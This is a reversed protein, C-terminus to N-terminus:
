DTLPLALGCRVRVYQWPDHFQHVHQLPLNLGKVRSDGRMQGLMLGIQYREKLADFADAGSCGGRQNGLKRFQPL